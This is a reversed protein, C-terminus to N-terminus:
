YPCEASGSAECDADAADAPEAETLAEDLVRFHDLYARYRDRIQRVYRVPETARVYGYMSQSAWPEEALQLMAHEVNDFWANADLNLQRAVRRAERVHGAGANYAALAFWLRPGPALDPFRNWTWELYRVGARINNQPEHLANPDAGVERATRPLVQLLGRAGAYSSSDPDFGSEQYMQAVVLRWDFDGDTVEQVENRVLEDYPSLNDGTVRDEHQRRMRRENQFYKRYLVNFDYGRRQRALFADLEQKFEVHSDAVAWRLGEPPELQLGLHLREDFQAALEAQHSDTLTADYVGQAVDGLIATTLRNVLRPQLDTSAAMVQLTRAQSAADSVVVERGALQEMSVIPSRATVFTQKVELYPESFALERAIREDTAFWSASILDGRGELLWDALHSSRPAVVVELELGHEKAFLEVLEHEYGLREGRWLYYTTPGTVTVMRLSGAEKIAKWGRVEHTDDIAHREALFEDLRQKLVTADPHLAWALHRTEPLARLFKVADSSNVARRAAAEDMISASVQGQEILNLVDLPDASDPLHLVEAEPYHRALSEGYAYGVPIGFPGDASTGIVWERSLTLPETFLMRSARAKTITVPAVVVDATEAGVTALLDRFGAVVVWEAALGHREAFQEAIREYHEPGLGQRPLTDFGAWQQRALRIAGRAEIAEWGFQPPPPPPPPEPPSCSLIAPLALALLLSTGIRRAGRRPRAGRRAVQRGRGFHRAEFEGQLPSHCPSPGVIATRMPRGSDYM